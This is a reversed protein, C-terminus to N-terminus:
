VDATNQNTSVACNRFAILTAVFHFHKSKFVSSSIYMKTFNAAQQFTFHFPIHNLKKSKAYSISSCATYVLGLCVLMTEKKQSYM